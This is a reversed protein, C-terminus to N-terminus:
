DVLYTSLKLQSSDVDVLVTAGYESRPFPGFYRSASLPISVARSAVAQGDVTQSLHITVTHAGSGDANRVLLLVNSNTNDFSHNNVSDGAVEAGPAIGARTILTAPLNTRAM